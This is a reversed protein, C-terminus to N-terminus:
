RMPLPSKVPHVIRLSQHMLSGRAAMGPPPEFQGGGGGGCVCNLFLACCLFRFTDVLDIVRASASPALQGLSARQVLLVVSTWHRTKEKNTSTTQPLFRPSPLYSPPPPPCPCWPALQMHPPPHAHRHSLTTRFPPQRGGCVGFDGRLSTTLDLAPASAM